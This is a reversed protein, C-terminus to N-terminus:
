QGEQQAMVLNTYMCTRPTPLARTGAPHRYSLEPSQGAEM